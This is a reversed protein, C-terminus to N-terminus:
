CLEIVCLSIPWMLRFLKLPLSILNNFIFSASFVQGKFLVKRQVVAVENLVIETSKEM